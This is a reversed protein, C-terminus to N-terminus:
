HYHGHIDPVVGLTQLLLHGLLFGLAAVALDRGGSKELAERFGPSSLSFSLRGARRPAVQLRLL